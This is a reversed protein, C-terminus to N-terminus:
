RKLTHSQPFVILGCTGSVKQSPGSTATMVETWVDSDQVGEEPGALQPTAPVHIFSCSPHVCPVTSTVAPHCTNKELWM